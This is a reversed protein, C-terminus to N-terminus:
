PRWMGEVSPVNAGTNFIIKSTLNPYRGGIRYTNSFTDRPKGVFEDHWIGSGSVYNYCGFFIKSCCQSLDVFIM